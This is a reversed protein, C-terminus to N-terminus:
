AGRKGDVIKRFGDFQQSRDDRTAGDVSKSEGDLQRLCKDGSLHGVNRGCFAPWRRSASFPRTKWKVKEEAM